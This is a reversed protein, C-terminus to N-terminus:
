GAITFTSFLDDKKAAAWLERASKVDKLKSASDLSGNLTYTARIFNRMGKYMYIKEKTSKYSMMFVLVNIGGILSFVFMKNALLALFNVGNDIYTKTLYGAFTVLAMVICNGLNQGFDTWFIKKATDDQTICCKCLLLNTIITFSVPIILFTMFVTKVYVQNNSFCWLGPGDPHGGDLDEWLSHGKNIGARRLWESDRPGCDACDTGYDCAYPGDVQTDPYLSTDGIYNFVSEGGAWTFNGGDECIGNNVWLHFCTNDCVERNCLPAIQNILCICFGTLFIMTRDALELPHTHHSAFGLLPHKQLSFLWLDTCTNDTWVRSTMQSISFIDRFNDDQEIEHEWFDSYPGNYTARMKSYLMIAKFESETMAELNEKM